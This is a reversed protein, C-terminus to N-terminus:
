RPDLLNPTREVWDAWCGTHLTVVTVWRMSGVAVELNSLNMM